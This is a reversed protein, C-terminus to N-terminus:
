LAANALDNKNELYWTLVDRADWLWKGDSKEFKLAKPPPGFRINALNMVAADGTIKVDAVSLTKIYDITLGDLNKALMSLYDFGEKSPDPSPKSSPLAGSFLEESKEALLKRTEPTLRDWIAKPDKDLAAKRLSTFVDKPKEGCGVALFLLAFVVVIRSSARM